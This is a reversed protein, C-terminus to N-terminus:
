GTKSLSWVLAAPIGRWLEQAAIAVGAFLGTTFDADMPAELCDLVDLGSARFARLYTSHLHAHNRIFALGQATPFLAQGQILVFTPHADTLVIRGRPRVVRAIEDIARSPDDIHTLALACIAFDFQDDDFPLSTFDGLRFEADPVKQRAVDLMEPTADIGITDHGGACLWASHRGTGCAVDLASGPELDATAQRVL